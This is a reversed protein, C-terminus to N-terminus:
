AVRVFLMAALHFITPDTGGRDLQYRPRLITFGYGSINLAGANLAAMSVWGSDFSKFGTTLSGGTLTTGSYLQVNTNVSGTSATAAEVFAQVRPTLSSCGGLASIQLAIVVRLQPTGHDDLTATDFSVRDVNTFDQNATAYTFGSGTSYAQGAAVGAALDYLIKENDAPIALGSAPTTWTM